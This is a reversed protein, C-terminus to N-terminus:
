CPFFSCGWAYKARLEHRALDVSYNQSSFNIGCICARHPKTQKEKHCLKKSERTLSRSHEQAQAHLLSDELLLCSPAKGQPTLDKGPVAEWLKKRSQTKGPWSRDEGRTGSKGRGEIALIAKNEEGLELVYPTLQFVRTKWYMQLEHCNSILWNENGCSGGNQCSGSSFM